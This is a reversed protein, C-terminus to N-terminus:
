RGGSLIRWVMPLYRGLITKLFCTVAVSLVPIAFYVMLALVAHETLDIRCLSLILNVMKILPYHVGYLFFGNKMFDRVQPLHLRCLLFWLLLVMASRELVRSLVWLGINGTITGQVGLWVCVGIMLAMTAIIAANCTCVKGGPASCEVVDRCFRAGFAGIFYYFIADENIEPLDWMTYILILVGLMGLVATPLRRLLLYFVPALVTLLILQYLYWFTPNYTYHAAASSLNQLTFAAKGMVGYMCYLIVNWAGFPVLLSWFRRRWKDGIESFHHLTRFFLYGSIMFFGPVAMQGLTNSFFNEIWMGPDAHGYLQIAERVTTELIVNSDALNVAHILIVLLSLLFSMIFVRKSFADQEM